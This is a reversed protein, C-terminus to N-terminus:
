RALSARAFGAIAPAVVQPADIGVFLMANDIAQFRGRPFAKALREGLSVPFFIDDKGWLVLVDRDFSAFRKAAELTVQPRIAVITKRLDERVGPNNAFRGLLMALVEGDPETHAVTKFFRKRVQPRLTLKSFLWWLAPIRAAFYLPALSKPPFVEFADCNTLVLRGVREPQYAIVLQCLAGGTDNGVLTVDRLDLAELLGAIVRALALPSHDVTPPSPYRHVGLPLHVNICRFNPALRDIVDYWVGGTAFVGHVFVIPPGEGTVDYMITRGELVITQEVTEITALTDVDQDRGSELQRTADAGGPQFVQPYSLM